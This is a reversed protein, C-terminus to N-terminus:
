PRLRVGKWADVPAAGPVPRTSGGNVVGREKLGDAFRRAGIPTNGTEACWGEYAQRLASRGVRFDGIECRDLLFNHLPNSEDRYDATAETVQVPEGLGDRQWALCGQVSWALIGPAEVQLKELLRKDREQPPITVTWPITRLRRWIGDDAGTIMPKHNGCIMLKHTATFEVFDQHMKRAKVADEGTLDKVLGEDFKQGNKVEPCMVLRYGRLDAINTPHQENRSQYLLGPPAKSAYPGLLRSLTNHYVSKGNAGEGFSFFLAHESTEGTLVYGAVRQLYGILAADGAMCRDLFAIWTPAQAAADYTVPALKSLMDERRHPRLEGTRLELTGNQVNLAWPDADFDEPSAALDGKSLAIMSEIGRRSQTYTAHRRLNKRQDDNPEVLVEDDISRATAAADGLIANREDVLWHCGDWRVWRKWQEVWRVTDRHQEVFRGANGLDTLAHGPRTGAAIDEITM